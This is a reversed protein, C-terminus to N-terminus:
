LKNYWISLALAPVIGVGNIPEIASLTDSNSPVLYIKGNSSTIGGCYKGSVSSSELSDLKASYTTSDVVLFNNAQKPICYLRGDSGIKIGQYKALNSKSLNLNFPEKIVRDDQPNIILITNENYPACYIRGDHGIVGGAWKNNGNLFTRLTSLRATGDASNVILFEEANHPIFYVFGNDSAVNGYWKGNGTLDLGFDNLSATGSATDIVLVSTANYPACYIKGDPAVCGGMWKEGGSLDLGFDTLSANGSVTDLVMIETANYPIAYILGNAGLVASAYKGNGSLTVGASIEEMTDSATDIKLINPSNYPMAYINLDPGLIANKWMDVGSISSDQELNKYQYSSWSNIAYNQQTAIFSENSTVVEQVVITWEDVAWSPGVEEYTALDQDNEEDNGVIIGRYTVLGHINESIGELFQINPHTHIQSVTVDISSASSIPGNQIQSWDFTLGNIIDQFNYDMSEYEAVKIFIDNSPEYAYLASGSDVRVDDSADLVFVMFAQGRRILANRETINQVAEFKSVQSIKQEFLENIMSSNGVAKAVGTESNSVLYTEITNSTGDNIFYFANSEPQAPLESVKYFNISGNSM